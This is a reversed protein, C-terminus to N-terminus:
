SHIHFPSFEDDSSDETATPDESESLKEVPLFRTGTRAYHLWCRMCINEHKGYLCNSRIPGRSDYASSDEELGSESQLENADEESDSKSSPENADEKSNSAPPLKNDDDEEGAESGALSPEYPHLRRRIRELLHRWYPQVLPDLVQRKCDSCTLSIDLHLDPRDGHTFLDLLTEREWGPHVEHNQEIEQDIFSELDVKHNILARLWSTFVNSSYMALTTPSEKYPTHRANFGLRHLDPGRALIFTLTDTTVYLVLHQHLLSYGDRQYLAANIVDHGGLSLLLDSAEALESEPESVWYLMRAFHQESVYTRLEFSLLRLMSLLLSGHALAREHAFFANMSLRDMIDWGYSDESFDISDILLRFTDRVESLM